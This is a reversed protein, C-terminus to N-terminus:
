AAFPATASRGRATSTSRGCSRWRCTTKATTRTRCTSRRWSAPPMSGAARASRVSRRSTTKRARTSSRATSRAPRSSSSASSASTSRRRAGGPAHRAPQGGDDAGRQSRRHLRRRHRRLPDRDPLRRDGQADRRLRARRGQHLAPAQPRRSARVAARQPAPQRLGRGRQRRGANSVLHSGIFGAGGTICIRKNTLAM